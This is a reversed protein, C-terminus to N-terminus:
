VNCASWIQINNTGSQWIVIDPTDCGPSITSSTGINTGSATVTAGSWTFTQGITYTLASNYAQGASYTPAVVGTGATGTGTTAVAVSM